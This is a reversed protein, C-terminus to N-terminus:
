IRWVAPPPRGTTIEIMRVLARRLTLGDMAALRGHVIGDRMGAGTVLGPAALDRWGDLVAEADPGAYVAAATARAGDAVAPRSLAGAIPGDLRGIDLYVPRGGRRLELRDRLRGAEVRERMATRGFVLAEIGFFQADPALDVTLSRSLDARQFLITEQPLWHVRAGDAVSIETAVRATGGISRYIKECAQTAATLRAGAQAELRVRLADGGTLGGATNLLVAEVEDRAPAGPNPFRIKAIGEQRLTELRSRGDKRRVTLRAAGFSRQLRAAAELGDQRTGIAAAATDLLNGGGM